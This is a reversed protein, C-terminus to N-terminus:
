STYSQEEVAAVTRFFSFIIRVRNNHNPTPNVADAATTEWKM